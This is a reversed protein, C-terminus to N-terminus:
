APPLLARVEALLRPLDEEVIQWVEGSNVNPYDHVVRNRFGAIGEINTIRKSIEPDIRRLRVTAEGIIMLGYKIAWQFETDEEFDAITRGRAIEILHRATEAIHQLRSSRELEDLPTM